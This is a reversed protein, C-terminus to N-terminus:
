GWDQDIAISSIARRLDKHNRNEFCDNIENLLETDSMPYFVHKHNESLILQIKKIKDLDKTTFRQM